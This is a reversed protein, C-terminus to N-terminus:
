GLEGAPGDPPGKACWRKRDVFYSRLFSLGVETIHLALMKAAASNMKSRECNM